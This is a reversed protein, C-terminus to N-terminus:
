SRIQAAPSARLKESRGGLKRVQGVGTLVGRAHIVQMERAEDATQADVEGVDGEMAHRQQHRPRVDNGNM